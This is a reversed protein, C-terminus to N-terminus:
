QKGRVMMLADLICDCVPDHKAVRYPDFDPIEVYGANATDAYVLEIFTRVDRYSNYAIFPPFKIDRMLSDLIPQDLTGRVWVPLNKHNPFQEWWEKLEAIGDMASMDMASPKFSLMKQADGQKSWWEVTDKSVFRPRSFNLQEKADFKIFKSQGVLYDFAENNDAPLNDPDCYVMALSLCVSTSEVGLTEVDFLFFPM